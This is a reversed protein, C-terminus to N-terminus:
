GSAGTEDGIAADALLELWHSWAREVDKMGKQNLGEGNWGNTLTVQTGGDELLTFVIEIQEDNVPAYSAPERDAPGAAFTQVIRRGPELV